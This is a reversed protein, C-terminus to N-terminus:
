SAHRAWSTRLCHSGTMKWTPATRWHRASAQHAFYHTNSLLLLMLSQSCQLSIERLKLNLQHTVSLPPSGPLFDVKSYLYLDKHCLHKVPIHTVLQFNRPQVAISCYSHTCTHTHARTNYVIFCRCKSTKHMAFLFHSSIYQYGLSMGPFGRSLLLAPGKCAMCTKPMYSM